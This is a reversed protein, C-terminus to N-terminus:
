PSKQSQELRRAIWKNVIDDLVSLPVSGYSLVEDHYAKIDFKGGLKNHARDRLEILKLQGLKYALAQGPNDIYRDIENTIDLETKPANDMFYNIAQQRDWGKAHMGTDVVLRVARWMDYTLQGFKSYPDKYMGLDYGLRESYLGWGETFATFGDYRRFNPMSELEQQLAIQLHHGPVAEHVSLVEMEWKPRTEPKYLNVYYYGARSGDAAPRTYYATTTDPAVADPIRKLGYPMRPLKGFLQVLEPDLRKTIALYADFLEDATEYYFKPETRLYTFFEHLTGTFGVDEMVAHMESRNRAVEKLGLAYVEDPTMETTTYRRVLYEYYTTGDPLDATSISARTAPQYTKVFYDNLRHYAPIVTTSITAKARARLRKKTAKDFSDPMEIFPKFFPSHEPDTVLQRKIQAPVRQMLITPAVIGQAIGENMLAMTQDMPGDIKDLRVLWDEFDSVERMRIRNGMEDLTQIGGRHSIPTLHSNFEGGEVRDQYRRKFLVYNLQDGASLLERDIGQLDSLAQSDGNRRKRRALSSLDQWDQNFRRDGLYSARVPNEALAREWHQAFIRHLKASESQEVNIEALAATSFFLLLFGLTVASRATIMFRNM